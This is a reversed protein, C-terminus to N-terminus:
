RVSIRVDQVNIPIVVAAKSENPGNAFSRFAVILKM